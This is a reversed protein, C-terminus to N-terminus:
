INTLIENNVQIDGSDPDFRAPSQLIEGDFEITNQRLVLRQDIFWKVAVPYIRHEESLVRHALRQETDDTKINIRAQIIVPGSDLEPTVFHVSAGHYQDGAALAKRHTNLGPYKPLLSPHINLLRGLYHQVFEDTLIRLFGALVVVAPQYQDICRVLAQDFSDRSEFETHKIIHTNIGASQARKIGFADAKNSIVASIRAKILGSDVADMIAQLNSGSGSILVVINSM